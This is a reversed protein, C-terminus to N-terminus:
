WDLRADAALDELVDLDDAAAREEVSAHFHCAAEYSWIERQCLTGSTTPRGCARRRNLLGDYENLSM